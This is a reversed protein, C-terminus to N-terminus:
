STLRKRGKVRRRMVVRRGNKTSMRKLWGHTRKAKLTNPQYTRKVCQYSLPEQTDADADADAIDDQPVLEPPHLEDDPLDFELLMDARTTRMLPASPRVGLGSLFAVFKHESPLQAGPQALVTEAATTAQAFM